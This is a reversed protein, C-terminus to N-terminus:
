AAVTNIDTLWDASETSVIHLALSKADSGRKTRGKVKRPRADAEDIQGDLRHRRAPSM